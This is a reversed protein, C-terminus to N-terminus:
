SRVVLTGQLMDMGCVFTFDGSETPTFEIAYDENLPLNTATIGFAPIQVQEACEDDVTRHFILRAPIGSQLQIRAPQYGSLGVTIRVTQVGKEMAAVAPAGGDPTGQTVGQNLEQGAPEAPGGCGIATLLFFFASLLSTRHV